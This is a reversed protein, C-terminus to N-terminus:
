PATGQGIRDVLDDAAARIEEALRREQHAQEEDAALRDGARDLLSSLARAEQEILTVQGAMVVGRELAM